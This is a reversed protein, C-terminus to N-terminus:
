RAVRFGVNPYDYSPQTSLRLSLVGGTAATSWYGGRIFARTTTDAYNAMLQGIGYSSGWSGLSSLGPSSTLASPRSAAPINGLSLSGNTWERWVFSSDGSIGVNSMAQSRSTWEGINGSLDWIVEGNTLTLTRRNNSGQGGIGGTMGYLGDTDDTSAAINSAPNYNIHGQYIYGSGVAGGSWNSAVSLVNAAVTMWEAETILHCGVCASNSTTIASTQTISDWPLGTAVSTAVGGVNKAEYKMLCFDSTGFNANGPVVIYGSPCTTGAIWGSCTGESVINNSHTVRYSTGNAVGSVCYAVGGGNYIWQDSPPTINAQALSSPYTDVNTVKYAELQTATQKLNSQLLSLNAQTTIGTYAVITIAALVGIVVVVILLEVITFGLTTHQNDVRHKM